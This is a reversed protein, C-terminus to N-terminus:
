VCRSTYLLCLNSLLDVAGFIDMLNEYQEVRGIIQSKDLKGGRIERLLHTYSVPEPRHLKRIIICLM